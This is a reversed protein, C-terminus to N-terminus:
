GIGQLLRCFSATFDDLKGVFKSYRGADRMARKIELFDPINFMEQAQHKAIGATKIGGQLTEYEGLVKGTHSVGYVQTGVLPQELKQTEDWIHKVFQSDDPLGLAKFTEMIANNKVSRALALDGAVVAQAYQGAWEKAARDGMGIRAIRYVVTAADNSNWRFKTLSLKQTEADVSYPMYGSFTKYIKGPLSGDNRLYDIAKSDGLKSRLLTRLPMMAQGALSGQMEGFYLSTKLFNHVEDATKLGGIRGAAVTGLQPYKQIIEGATSKALDDLARNYQAGVGFFKGANSRVLDMQESTLAAGTRSTIFNKVGPISNMIPYKIQIEGAKSLNVLKGTKMLTSFRGAVSFPDMTIDFFIDGSGSAVKGIGHKTDRFTKALAEAGVADSATALVNSFDRGPSVKYNEDESKAYSDKFINGLAKRTAAGAADAALVGGLPGAVVAGATAAGLIGLSAAFGPLFGHDVYVSHVFKYDRQVEKLPKGLWGLTNIAGTGLRSWFTQTGNGEAHDNIADLTSVGKATHSLVTGASNPIKSNYTDVALGPNRALDPTVWGNWNTNDAM